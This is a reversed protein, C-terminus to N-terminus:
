DLMKTAAVRVYVLRRGHSTYKLHQLESRLCNQWQSTQLGYVKMNLKTANWKFIDGNTAALFNRSCLQILHPNILISWEQSDREWKVNLATSDPVAHRSFPEGTTQRDSNLENCNDPLGTCDIRSSDRETVGASIRRTEDHSRIPLRVRAFRLRWCM